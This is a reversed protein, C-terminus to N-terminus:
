APPMPVVAEGEAARRTEPHSGTLEDIWDPGSGRGTPWRVGRHRGAVAPLTM